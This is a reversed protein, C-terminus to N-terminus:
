HKSTREYTCISFRHAHKEDAEHTERQVANWEGPNWEPFYTDGEYAAEIHTLVLKDALPLAAQYIQAGGIVFAETEGQSQAFVLADELSGVVVCGEAHFDTQRTIIVNTRKPLPRNISEYTKRGMIIVHSLTLRKFSKLDKPLHWLLTNNGGIIGNEAIACILSVKM